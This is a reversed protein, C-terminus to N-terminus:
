QNILKSYAVENGYKDYYITQGTNLKKFTGVVYGDILISNGQISITKGNNSTISGNSNRTGLQNGYSDLVDTGNQEIMTNGYQDTVKAGHGNPDGTPLGMTNMLDNTTPNKFSQDDPNDSNIEYSNNNNRQVTLGQPNIPVVVPNPIETYSADQVNNTNSYGEAFGEAGAAIGQAIMQMRVARAKKLANKVYAEDMGIKVATKYFKKDLKGSGTESWKEIAKNIDGGFKEVITKAVKKKFGYQILQDQTTQSFSFTFSLFSLIILLNKM